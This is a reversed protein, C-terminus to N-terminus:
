RYRCARRCYQRKRSGFDGGYDPLLSLAVRISAKIIKKVKIKSQNAGPKRTPAVIPGIMNEPAMIEQKIRAFQHRNQPDKSINTTKKM